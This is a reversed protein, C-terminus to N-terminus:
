LTLLGRLGIGPIKETMSEAIFVRRCPLRGLTFPMGAPTTCYPSRLTVDCGMRTGPLDDWHTKSPFNSRAMLSSSPVQHM